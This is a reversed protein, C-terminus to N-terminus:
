GLRHILRDLDVPQPLAQLALSVANYAQRNATYLFLCVRLPDAAILRDANEPDAMFHITTSLFETKFGSQEDDVQTAYSSEPTHANQQIFRDINREGQGLGLKWSVLDTGLRTLSSHGGVQPEPTTTDYGEGSPEKNLLHGYGVERLKSNKSRATLFNHLTGFESPELNNELHHGFEHVIVDAPSGWGVTLDGTHGMYSVPDTLGQHVNPIDPLPNPRRVLANFKGRATEAVQPPHQVGADFSLAPPAGGQGGAFATGDLISQVFPNARLAAEVAVNRTTDETNPTAVANGYHLGTLRSLDGEFMADDGGYNPRRVTMYQRLVPDDVAALVQDVTPVTGHPLGIAARERARTVVVSGVDPAQRTGAQPTHTTARSQLDAGIAGGYVAGVGGLIAGPGTLAGLTAGALAGLGPGMVGDHDAMRGGAAGALGGLASGAVMAPLLEGTAVGAAGLLGAGIGAGVGAAKAAGAGALGLLVAAPLGMGALAVGGGVALGTGLAKVWDWSVRQVPTLASSGMLGARFTAARLQAPPRAAAQEAQRGMRDAEAELAPDDNLPVAGIRGTVPVRGQMQQVVHWAEHPLH